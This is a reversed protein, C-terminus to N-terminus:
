PKFRVRLPPSLAAIPEGRIDLAPEFRWQHACDIVDDAIASDSRQEARVAIVNGDRDVRLRLVLLESEMDGDDAFTLGACELSSMDLRAARARSAITQGQGNGPTTHTAGHVATASNGDRHTVGGAYGMANGTVFSEGTFDLTDEAAIVAAAQALPPPEDPATPEPTPAAERPAHVRERIPPPTPAVPTPEPPPAPPTVDIVEFTTMPRAAAAPTSRARALNTMAGGLVVLGGCLSATVSAALLWRYTPDQDRRTASSTM